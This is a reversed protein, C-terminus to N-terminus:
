NKKKKEKKKRKETQWQSGSAPHITSEQSGRSGNVMKHQILEAVVLDNVLAVGAEEEAETHVCVIVLQGVELENVEKDLGEVGEKLIDALQIQDEVEELHTAFINEGNKNESGKVVSRIFSHCKRTLLHIRDQVLHNQVPLRHFRALLHDERADRSQLLELSFFDFL